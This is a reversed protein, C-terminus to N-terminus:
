VAAKKNCDAEWEREIKRYLRMAVKADEVPNHPKRRQVTWGLVGKALDKLSANPILDDVRAKKRLLKCTSTDRINETALDRGQHIQLSALDHRIDNAVVLKGKLLRLIEKKAKAFPKGKELDEEKMGRTNTVQMGPSIHSNYIVKYNYDVIACHAAVSVEVNKNKRKGFKPVANQQWESSPRCSVMECDIAVVKKKPRKRRKRRRKQLRPSKFRSSSAGSFTRPTSKHVLKACKTAKSARAKDSSGASKNRSVIKSCTPMSYDDISSEESDEETSIIDNNYKRRKSEGRWYDSSACKRSDCSATASKSEHMQSRKRKRSSGAIPSDDSSAETHSGDTSSNESEDDSWMKNTLRSERRCGLFVNDDSSCTQGQEESPSSDQSQERLDQERAARQLSKLRICDAISLGWDCMDPDFMPSWSALEEQLIDRVELMQLESFLGGTAQSVSQDDGSSESSDSCYNAAM